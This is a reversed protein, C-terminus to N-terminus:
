NDLFHIKLKTYPRLMFYILAIILCFPILWIWLYISHLLVQELKYSIIINKITYYGGFFIPLILLNNLIIQCFSLCYKKIPFLFSFFKKLLYCLCVTQFLASISTALALGPAGMLKMFFQNLIVNLFTAVVLVWVSLWNAKITYYINLIIKNLSFFILGALLAWLVQSAQDVYILDKAKFMLTAFIDKAFFAMMWTIPLMIWVIIKTSEFLYFMLRRPAYNAVKGFHPFLITAFATAFVGLPIGMFRSAYEILTYSGGPLNSAFRTDIFLNIEMISMGILVPLFRKLVGHMHYLSSKNPKLFSFGNKFYAFLHFVFQLFAAALFAYCIYITPWSFKIALILASVIILNMLVPTFAPVFFKNVSELSAKLLASCSIFFIFPSLVQLFPVAIDIQEHFGPAAFLLVNRAQTAMLICILALIGEFFIFALTMLKSSADKGEKFVLDVVSPIFAASLAGEAFIKRLFNPIKYAVLFADSELGVGLYQSMLSVRLLGMIRSFLTAGGVEATKKLISKKSIQTM